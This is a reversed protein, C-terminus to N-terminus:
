GLPLPKLFIAFSRQAGTSFDMLRAYPQRMVGFFTSRVVVAVPTLRDGNQCMGSRQGSPPLGRPLPGAPKRPGEPAAPKARSIPKRDSKKKLGVAVVENSDEGYIAVVQKKSGGVGDHFAHEAEISEDRAAALAKELRAEAEQTDKYRKYAANIVPLTFNENPPQYGEITRLGFLANEDARLVDLPIRKRATKSMHPEM